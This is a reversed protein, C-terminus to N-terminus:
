AAPSEQPLEHADVDRQRLVTGVAAVAAVSLAAAGLLVPALGHRGALVGATVAGLPMLGYALTRSAGGVRGLLRAPVLRQRVTESIVNGVTSLAGLPVLVVVLAPVRPVLVPVVLLSFSVAWCGVMLRVEGIRRALAEGAVSGAVAGAALGLMLLPYTQETMGVRSGPGVVWLVFVAFYAASAMNLVAATLVVPRLVPHRTIFRLGERVDAWARPAGPAPADGAGSTPDPGPSPADTRAHRYRGPVGRWLVAVAAVALAAPVGLVWGTGLTLLAGALPAGLFANAVQQVAVVRGNAAPLRERPVLDPIMATSGLDVVVETVGYALVLGVLVPLTLAGTVALWAGAALLLARAGLGVMQVRRRDSRDVLVGATIGLLLWPLWTAASLLAIQEPSRTLGLAVLPVGVAIVGDGLNAAGAAALLATFRRGLRPAAPRPVPPASPAAM